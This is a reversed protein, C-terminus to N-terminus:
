RFNIIYVLVLAALLILNVALAAGGLLQGAFKKERKVNVSVLLNVAIALFGLAPFILLSSGKGILDVGSQVNYHLVIRTQGAWEMIKLALFFNMLGATLALGALLKIYPIAILDQFGEKLNERWYM